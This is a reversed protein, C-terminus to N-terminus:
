GHPDGCEDACPRRAQRRAMEIGKPMDFLMVGFQSGAMDFSNDDLQAGVTWSAPRLTSSARAREKLLEVHRFIPGNGTSRVLAAALAQPRRQWRWTWVRMGIPAPVASGENGLWM